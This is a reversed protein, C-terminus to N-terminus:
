VDGPMRLWELIVNGPQAIYGLTRAEYYGVNVSNWLQMVGLPLLTAFVMWALGINLSWFSLKALRDPWKEPPIIYRLAFLALGIALMGYVGMMSGHAHNATLAAGIEVYCLIPLNVMVGYAGAGRFTCFAVAVLCRVAWRHPVPASSGSEQRELVQLLTRAEVTLFTL